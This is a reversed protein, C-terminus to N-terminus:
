RRYRATGILEIRGDILGTLRSRVGVRNRYLVPATATVVPGVAVKNRYYALEPVSGLYRQGVGVRNALLVPDGAAPVDTIDGGVYSLAEVTNSYTVAGSPTFPQGVGIGTTFRVTETKLDAADDEAEFPWPGGDNSWLKILREPLAVDFLAVWAITGNLEYGEQILRAFQMDGVAPNYVLTTPTGSSSGLTTYERGDVWVRPGNAKPDFVGALVRDNGLDGNFTPSYAYYFQGTSDYVAFNYGPNTFGSEIWYLAWGGTSSGGGADKAGAFGSLKGTEGNDGDVRVRAIVTMGKNRLGYASAAGWSIKDGTAGGWSLANWRGSRGLTANTVTGDPGPGAANRAHDVDEASWFFRLNRTMEHTRFLPRPM